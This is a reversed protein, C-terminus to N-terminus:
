VEILDDPDIPTYTPLGTEPDSLVNRNFGSPQYPYSMTNNLMFKHGTNLVFKYPYPKQNILEQNDSPPISDYDKRWNLDKNVYRSAGKEYQYGFTKIDWEYNNQIIDILTLNENYVKLYSQKNINSSNHVLKKKSNIMKPDYGLRNIWYWKFHNFQISWGDSAKLRACDEANTNYDGIWDVIFRGLEDILYFVQPTKHMSWVMNVIQPDVWDILKAPESPWSTFRWKIWYDFDMQVGDLLGSTFWRWLSVERDWPNRIVAMSYHTDYREKLNYKAMVAPSFDDFVPSFNLDSDLMSYILSTSGTRPLHLFLFKDLLLYM